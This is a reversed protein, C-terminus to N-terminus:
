ENSSSEVRGIRARERGERIAEALDGGVRHILQERFASVGIHKGILELLKLRSEFAVRGTSRDLSRLMGLVTLPLDKPKRLNGKEDWAERLDCDLLEGLERLVRDADMGLRKSRAAM